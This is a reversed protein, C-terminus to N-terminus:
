RVKEDWVIAIFQGFVLGMFTWYVHMERDRVSVYTLTDLRHDIYVWALCGFLACCLVIKGLLPVSNISRMIYRMM